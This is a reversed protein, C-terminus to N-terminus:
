LLKKKTCFRRNSKKKQYTVLVVHKDRLNAIYVNNNYKAIM